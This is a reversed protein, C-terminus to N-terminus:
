YIPLLVKEYRGAAPPTKVDIVKRRSLDVWVEVIPVRHVINLLLDKGEAEMGQKLVARTYIIKYLDKQSDPLGLFHNGSGEGKMNMPIESIYWDAPLLYNLYKAKLGSGTDDVKTRVRVDSGAIGILAEMTEPAMRGVSLYVSNASYLAYLSDLAFSQIGRALGISVLLSFLYLVFVGLVKITRSKPPGPLKVSLPWKFPVFMHTKKKYKLYSDGYKKECIDEELKALFYYAFLMTIFMILLIYRPWLLLLGLGSISLSAYQPHRIVNYIGGTVPGKRALKHYYVQAAGILFAAFGVVFLVAGVRNHLDILVSSTEEVIHPLFFRILWSFEPQDGFFNLGPGYFAYFYVAFPGAMFFFEFVILLYFATLPWITRKLIKNHANTPM